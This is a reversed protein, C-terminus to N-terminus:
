SGRWAIGCRQIQVVSFRDIVWLWTGDSQRRAVEATGSGDPLRPSTLALDDNITAPSQQGKAFKRGTATTESFLARIADHGTTLAGDGSNIVANREFLAVM